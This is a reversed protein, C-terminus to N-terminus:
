RGRVAAANRHWPGRIALTIGPRQINVYMTAGDPSFTAGAFESRNLANRAFRYPEGDPSVGVIFQQKPGDECLFLDGHRSMTLNDVMDFVEADDPELYLELVGGSQELPQAKDVRPDYRWVQGRKAKGGSTCGFYVTGRGWWLGEGRAFIAAGNNRGQLRLDDEPSTVDQVDIWDCEFRQGVAIRRRDTWNRTDVGCEGRIVLAQLRGGELLRGPRDPIFRYFLSDHRDESQYIIGSTPDVAIAEHNFRGMAVLPQPMVLGRSRAPVEFNYGHDRKYGLEDAARFVSEECSIWSNWPTPGGACNRCTGALSLFHEELRGTESDVILTTTGGMSPGADAGGDYIRARDVYRLWENDDGFPGVGPDGITLEHNRVLIIKGRAGRFAAMGDHAAPVRLGDDMREGTVSLTRYTFGRPLDLMGDPDRVLPGFGARPLGPSRGLRGSKFMRGLGLFGVATATSQSLFRRRSLDM